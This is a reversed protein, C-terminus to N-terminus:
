WVGPLLRRTVRAAYDAYGPLERQLLDDEWKTRLVLIAGAIAAPVLAWRSGLALAMGFFLALAAVYGPHRLYAYPGDSIVRQGRETQLRVGPEFFANVAQAWATVVIGFTVLLYGLAVAWAPLPQEWHTAAYAGVPFIAVMMTLMVAVLALDWKQTGPQFRSRARFIVPNVRAMVLASLAFGVILFVILAWGPMWRWTGAPVFVLVVLAATLGVSYGVAQGASLPPPNRLESM